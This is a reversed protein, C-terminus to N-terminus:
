PTGEYYAFSPTNARIDESLSQMAERLIQVPSLVFSFKFSLVGENSVRHRIRGDIMRADEHEFIPMGLMIRHPFTVTKSANEKQFVFRVDGNDLNQASGVTLQQASQFDLAAKLIDVPEPSEISNLMQEVFQAFDLQPLWKDHIRSWEQWEYSHSPNFSARFRCWQPARPGQHYDLIAVFACKKVDTFIVPHEQAFRNIYECFSGSSTLTVSEKIGDPFEQFRELSEIRVGEPLTMIPKGSVDTVERPMCAHILYQLAERDFM